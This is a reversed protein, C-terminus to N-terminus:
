SLNRLKWCRLPYIRKGGWHFRSRGGRGMKPIIKSINTRLNSIMSKIKNVSERLDEFLAVLATTIMTIPDTALKTVSKSLEQVCYAFNEGAYETATTGEPANLIGAFPLVTPKCRQNMWDKKIIEGKTMISCYSCVLFVFFTVFCVLFVSSGYLDYYTLGDYLQNILTSSKNLAANGNNMSM